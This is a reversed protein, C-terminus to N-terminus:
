ADETQVGVRVGGIEGFAQKQQQEGSCKPCQNSPEPPSMSWEAAGPDYGCKAPPVYDADWSRRYLHCRTALPDYPGDSTTDWWSWPNGRAAWGARFLDYLELVRAPTDYVDALSSPRWAVAGSGDPM